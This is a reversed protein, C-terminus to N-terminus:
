RGDDSRSFADPAAAFVVVARSEGGVRYAVSGPSEADLSDGARLDFVEGDVVVDVSGDLVYAFVDAGGVPVPCAGGEGPEAVVAAVALHLDARALSTVGPADTALTGRHPEPRTTVDSLLESLSLELAEVVRGLIPLSPLSRGNEISSLYSVSIAAAQATEALTWGRELRRARLREGVSRAVHPAHAPM